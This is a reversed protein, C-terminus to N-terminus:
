ATDHDADHVLAPQTSGGAAAPVARGIYADFLPGTMATTALAMLVGGLQMVPTIVGSQLGVIAVVLPLLGRCNMLIGLVNGEAWTLGGARAFVAGAGWKGVVGAVLFVGIGVLSAATLQTFDTGLGSFALFVPLLITGALEALRGSMDVFLPGRPQPLVVGAMFGGVIVSLGLLHAVYGSAFLVIFVTAFIGSTMGQEAFRRGLPKLLPRVVLVMVALYVGSLVLSRSLVGGGAGSAVIGASAALQFMLVTVIAAAAIGTAGMASTTLNKEQLIRVMVPFATVSLMAGVFLTFGLDSAGAAQFTPTNMVPAIAFALAVPVAVVGLGVLVISNFKGKLSKVNLELGTLFMFLLLAIQGINGLVARAQPPFLCYTPSQAPPGDTGWGPLAASLSAECHLFAPAEFGPWLTVGLLTPGLLIGAVIEGVVRPQGIRVFLGGVLRAVLFILALDLLVFAIVQNPSLPPMTSEEQISPSGARRPTGGSSVVM